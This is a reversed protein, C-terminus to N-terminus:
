SIRQIIANELKHNKEIFFSSIGGYDLIKSISQRSKEVSLGVGHTYDLNRPDYYWSSPSEGDFIRKLNKALKIPSWQGRVFKMYQMATNERLESNQIYKILINKLECPSCYAANPLGNLQSVNEWFEKAYGCTIPLVGYFASEVGFGSLMLDSYLQDICIDAMLIEAIVDTHPRNHILIFEIPYGEQILSEVVQIIEDSGKVSKNSPCHLIRIKGDARPNKIVIEGFYPMGLSIHWNLFPKSLFHATTPSMAIHDSHMEITRMKKAMREVWKVVTKPDNFRSETLYSGDIVPHRSDSGHFVHLTKIGMIKMLLMERRFLICSGFGYVVADFRTLVYFLLIVRWLKEIGRALCKGLINSASINSAQRELEQFVRVLWPQLPLNQLSVHTPNNTLNCSYVADEGNAIWGKYLNLHWGAIECTGFFIRM